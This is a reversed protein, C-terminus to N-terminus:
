GWSEGLYKLLMTSLENKSILDTKNAMALAHAEPTFTTSTTIVMTKNCDYIKMAGVVQQVADNGVSWDRYCKAQILIREGDKNAVLDGGQDGTRGILEVVYGM